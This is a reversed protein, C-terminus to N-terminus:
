MGCVSDGALASAAQDHAAKTKRTGMRIGLESEFPVHAHESLFSLGCRHAAANAPFPMHQADVQFVEFSVVITNQDLVSEGGAGGNM